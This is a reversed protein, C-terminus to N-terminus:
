IRRDRWSADGCGSELSVTFRRASVGAGHQRVARCRHAFTLRHYRQAREMAHLSHIARPRFQPSPALTAAPASDLPLFDYNNIQNRLSYPRLHCPILLSVIVSNKPSSRPAQHTSQFIIIPPPRQRFNM